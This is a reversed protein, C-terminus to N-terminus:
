ENKIVGEVTMEQKNWEIEVKADLLYKYLSSNSSDNTYQRNAITITGKYIVDNIKSNIRKQCYDGGLHLIRCNDATIEITKEGQKGLTGQAALLKNMDEFDQSEVYNLVNRAVNVAVTRNENQKAFLFSQSFFGMITITAIGLLAVALLVELLTFAKDNRILASLKM